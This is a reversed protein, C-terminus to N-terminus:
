SKLPSLGDSYTLLNSLGRIEPGYQYDICEYHSLSSSIDIKNCHNKTFILPKKLRNYLM